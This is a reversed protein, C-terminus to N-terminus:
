RRILMKITKSHSGAKLRCFFVGSPLQFGNSDNGNWIVEYQDAEVTHNVLELVKNGFIDVIELLVNLKEPVSFKIKTENDFPNPYNEQLTLNILNDYYISVVQSGVNSSGDIDIQRLVYQYTKGSIIDRDTYNYNRVVSSNGYGKVFGISTWDTQGGLIRREIYFGKNNQESATAWYLDIAKDRALGEFYILEVPIIDRDQLLTDKEDDETALFATYTSLVNYELSKNIIDYLNLLTKTRLIEMNRIWLGAWMSRNDYYNAYQDESIFFTSNYPVGRYYGTLDIKMPLPLKINDFTNGEFKGFEVFIEQSNLNAQSGTYAIKDYVFGRYFSITLTFNEFGGIMSKFVSNIMSEVSNGVDGIKVIFGRRPYVLGAYLYDNGTYPVSAIWNTVWNKETYTCVSIQINNKLLKNVKEGIKNATDQKGHQDTNSILLIKAEVANANVWEAAEYLLNALNSKNGLSASLFDNSIYDINKESASIWKDSLSYIKDNSIFLNFSDLPTLYDKMVKKLSNIVELKTRNSKNLDYDLLIAVKQSNKPNFFKKPNVMVQYFNEKLGFYTNAFIGDQYLHKFYFNSAKTSDTFGIYGLKAEGFRPNFVDHFSVNPNDLFGVTHFNDDPYAYVKIYEPKKFSANIFNVPLISSVLSDTWEVPLFCNIKVTRTSNGLLPFIKIIFQGQDKKYLISPDAMRQVIGEYIYGATWKDLLRAKVYVSDNLFLWMGNIFARQDLEFELVAELTDKDSSYISGKPSFTIFIGAEIFSGHPKLTMKMEEITGPYRSFGTRPSAVTLKLSFSNEVASLLLVVLLFFISLSKM